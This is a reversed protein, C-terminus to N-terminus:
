WPEKEVNVTFCDLCWITHIAVMHGKFNYESMIKRGCIKCDYTEREPQIAETKIARGKADYYTTYDHDNYADDDDHNDDSDEYDPDNDDDAVGDDDGGADANETIESKEFGNKDVREILAGKKMVISHVVKLHKRLSSEM